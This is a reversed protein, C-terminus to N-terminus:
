TAAARDAAIRGLITRLRDIRDIADSATGESPEEKARNTLGKLSQRINLTLVLDESGESSDPSPDRTSSMLNQLEIGEETERSPGHGRAPEEEAAGDQSRRVGAEEADIDQAPRKEKKGESLVQREHGIALMVIQVGCILLDQLLLRWKSIPGLEGVFEVILGGHIYGRASKATAEPRAHLIHTVICIFSTFLTPALQTQSSAPGPRLQVYFVQALARLFLLLTLNDHFYAIALQVFLLTDLNRLLSDLHDLRTTKVSLSNAPETMVHSDDL